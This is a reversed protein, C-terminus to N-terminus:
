VHSRWGPGSVGCRPLHRRGLLRRSGPPHLWLIRWNGKETITKAQALLEDWTKPPNDCNLGAEEIVKCNREFGFVGTMASVGYVKGNYVAAQYTGPILNEKIDAITDDLPVLADLAAYQQFFNEGVIIDPATGGLLANTLNQRLVEDWGQDQLVVTIGPNEKMFETTVMNMVQDRVDSPGTVAPMLGGEAWITLTVPEQTTGGAEAQVDTAEPPTTPAAEAAAPATTPAVTTASGTDTTAAPATGCAVIMTALLAFLAVLNFWRRPASMM